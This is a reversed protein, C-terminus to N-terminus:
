ITASPGTGYYTHVRNIWDQNASDPWDDKDFGPAYKLKDKAVPLVFCEEDSNVTLAALPVAFLKEGIGLFGGFSVVAYEVRSTMLDVMLDELAELELGLVKNGIISTASLYMAKVEINNTPFLLMRQLEACTSYGINFSILKVLSVAKKEAQMNRLM